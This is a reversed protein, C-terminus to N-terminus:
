SSTTSAAAGTYVLELVKDIVKVPFEAIIRYRNDFVALVRGEDKTQLNGDPFELNRGDRLIIKVLKTESYM